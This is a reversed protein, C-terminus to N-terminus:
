FGVIYNLPYARIFSVASVSDSTAYFKSTEKKRNDKGKRYMKIQIMFRSIFM